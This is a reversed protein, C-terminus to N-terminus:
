RTAGVETPLSNFLSECWIMPRILFTALFAVVTAVPLLFAALGPALGEEFAAALFAV